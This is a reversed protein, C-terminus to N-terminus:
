KINLLTLYDLYIKYKVLDQQNLTVAQYSNSYDKADSHFIKAHKSHIRFCSELTFMGISFLTYCVWSVQYSIVLVSTNCRKGMLCYGKDSFWM